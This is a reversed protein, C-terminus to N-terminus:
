EEVKTLKFYQEAEYISFFLKYGTTDTVYHGWDLMCRNGNEDTYDGMEYEVVKAYIEKLDLTSVGSTPTGNWRLTLTWGKAEAEAIANIIDEDTQHDIHIGLSIPHSSGDSWAPITNLLFLASEKTLQASACLGGATKLKPLELRWHRLKSGGVPYGETAGCVGSVEELAPCDSLFGSMYPMAHVEVHAKKLKKCNHFTHIGYYDAQPAILVAEELNPMDRCISDVSKVKDLVLKVKKATGTCLGSTRYDGSYRVAFNVMNPLNWVWYGDSTVDNRYDPNIAAMEENTTCAAYKNIDRWSIEIHHNYREVVVGRPVIREILDTVAAFQTDDLRDTHVVINGDYSAVEYNGAGVLQDLGARLEELVFETGDISSQFENVINPLSATVLVSGIPLERQLYTMLRLKMQSTMYSENICAVVCRNPCATYRFHQMGNERRNPEQLQNQQADIYDYYAKLASADGTYAPRYNGAEDTIAIEKNPAFLGPVPLATGLNLGAINSPMPDYPGILRYLQNGGIIYDKSLKTGVKLPTHPYAADYRGATTIYAKGDLLPSVAVVTCDQEVVTLGAAQASAYYLSKISQSGRMYRVVRAISGYVNDVRALYNYLNPMRGTYSQAMFQMKPFLAIPNQLFTLKGFQSAFDQNAYLITGDDKRISTVMIDKDIHLDWILEQNEPLVISSEGGPFAIPQPTGERAIWNWKDDGAFFHDEITLHSPRNLAPMSQEPAALRWFQVSPVYSGAGVVINHPVTDADQWTSASNKTFQFSVKGKNALLATGLLLDNFKWSFIQGAVVSIATTSTAILTNIPTEDSYTTHFVQLYVPEEIPATNLVQMKLEIIRKLGTPLDEELLEWAQTGLERAKSVSIQEIKDTIVGMGGRVRKQLAEKVGNWDIDADTFKILKYYDQYYCGGQIATSIKNGLPVLRTLSPLHSVFEAEAKSEDVITRYYFSGCRSLTNAKENLPNM